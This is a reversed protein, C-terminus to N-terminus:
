ERLYVYIHSKLNDNLRNNSIFDSLKWRSWLEDWWSWLSALDQCLHDRNTTKDHCSNEQNLCIYNWNKNDEMYAALVFRSWDSVYNYYWEPCINHQKVAAWEGGCYTIIREWNPDPNIKSLYGEDVLETLKSICAGTSIPYWGHDAWYSTIASGIENLQTKRLVDRSQERTGSVKPLAIWAIIGLIAVVALLEILTIWNKKAKM